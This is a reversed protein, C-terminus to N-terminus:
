FFIFLATAVLFFIWTFFKVLPPLACVFCFALRYFHYIQYFQISLHNFQSQSHMILLFLNM